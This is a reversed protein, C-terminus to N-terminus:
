RSLVKKGDKVIIRGNPAPTAFGGISYIADAGSQPALNPAPLEDVGTITGDSFISVRTLRTYLGKVDDSSLARSYIMLDDFSADASGWFSGLGLYFYQASKVFDLVLSRDFAESEASGTYALYISLYRNGDVYIMYGDQLSYTFTVLHWEGVGIKSVLKTNPHNIDFWNGANDNFGVYSNGTFYLRPGAASASTSGFFSWLADWVNDDTRKVWMSVTFGDMDANGFLPNDMRAYSNAGQAGFTQHLYSGFRSYDEELIPAKASTSSKGLAATQSTNLINVVPKVDFNYYAELATTQDGTIESGAKAKANFTTQWYYNGCDLRATLEFPTDEAPANYKGTPSFVDPESSTWTLSVNEEPDFMIDVNKSISLYKSLKFYSNAYKNYNYSLAYQPQLKYGWCPVGCNTGSKDCVATFCLTKATSGELTQEVVVGNYYTTGIKIQIYSKGEDTYKWSGTYAGSIVGDSSLHIIQPEAEAFNAYDLKYPHIIFHYDGEIDEATFPQSSAIDADTTTEDKFQFPATCLWGSKNLFMQYARVQHGATGNNFKTHCVLFSRGKTDQCASNHGQACEGVNMLGWSNMAGILKMGKNTAANPGYNLLYSPYLASNGAADKYPGTPTSSRFVRMEYGGDPSFGGYSMFLYYYDGIHQIYPGEGSVYAGGAIKKGFYADSSASESPSTSTGTYTYTYDRLGTTKDLKLMYIGGSWSGYALWLDGDEDFFACPDICNPYYSGWRNTVYRSPISSQPGLVIELDTAKYNVKKGSRTQGDFGGFVVPGQYTFPGEPSDSTMLVVVSAWHDGNLSLYYCWKKMEPNYVIDPAWQDGSVWQAETVPERDGVKIGAYTACFASADFSPFDVEEATTSGPLCRMVKRTPNSKFAKYADASNYGGKYYNFISTYSQFNKTKAGAYHSGYIYFTESSADWVVSPDHISVFSRSQTKYLSTLESSTMETSAEESSTLESSTLETSAEESSTMETQAMASSAALVSLSLTLLFKRM